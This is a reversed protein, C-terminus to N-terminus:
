WIQWNFEALEQRNATNQVGNTSESVCKNINISLENIKLSSTSKIQSLLCHTFIGNSINKNEEATENSQAASIVYAGNNRRIDVFAEKMLKFIDTSSAHAPGKM